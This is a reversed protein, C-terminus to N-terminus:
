KQNATKDVTTESVHGSPDPIFDFQGSYYLLIINYLM